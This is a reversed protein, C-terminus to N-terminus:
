TNRAAQGRSFQFGEAHLRLSPRPPSGPRAAGIENWQPRQYESHSLSPEWSGSAGSASSTRGTVPRFTKSNPSNPKWRRSATRSPLPSRTTITRHVGPPQNSSAEVPAVTVVMTILPNTSRSAAPFSARVLCPRARPRPAARTPPRNALHRAVKRWLPAGVFDRTPMDDTVGISLREDPNAYPIALSFSAPWLAPNARFPPGRVICPASRVSDGSSVALVMM